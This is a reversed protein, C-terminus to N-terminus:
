VSITGYLMVVVWLFPCNLGSRGVTWRCTTPDPTGSSLWTRRGFHVGVRVSGLFQLVCSPHVNVCATPHKSPRSAVRRGDGHSITPVPLTASESYSSLWTYIYQYCLILYLAERWHRRNQHCLTNYMFV